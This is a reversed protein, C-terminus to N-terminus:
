LLNETRARHAQPRFQLCRTYRECVTGMIPSLIYRIFHHKTLGFGTRGDRNELRHMATSMSAYAMSWGGGVVNMSMEPSRSKEYAKDIRRRRRYLTARIVGGLVWMLRVACAECWRWQVESTRSADVLGGAFGGFFSGREGTRTRDGGRTLRELAVGKARLFVSVDKVRSRVAAEGVLPMSAGGVEAKEVSGSCVRTMPSPEFLRSDRTRTRNPSLPCLPLMGEMATPSSGCLGLDGLRSGAVTDENKLVGKRNGRM